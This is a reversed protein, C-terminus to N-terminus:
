IDFCGGLHNLPAQHCSSMSWWAVLFLGCKTPLFCPLRSGDRPPNQPVSRPQKNGPNVGRHNTARPKKFNGRKRQLCPSARYWLDTSYHNSEEKKKETVFHQLAESDYCCCRPSPSLLHKQRRSPCTSTVRLKSGRRSDSHVPNFPGSTRSATPYVM